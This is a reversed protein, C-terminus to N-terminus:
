SGSAADVDDDAVAPSLGRLWSAVMALTLPPAQVFGDDAQPISLTSPSDPYDGELIRSARVRAEEARRM